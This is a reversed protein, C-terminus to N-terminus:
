TGRIRDHYRARYLLRQPRDPADDFGSRDHLVNNCLLGMGSELRGQFLYPSDSALIAQLRSLARQVDDDAHWVINRKRATYRMHLSGDPAVSFVPGAQDPRAVGEDDTRAPITMADARMLASVLVPDEDRLRIYVMDPDLLRNEGGRAAPHVCHLIMGRITREPTNYYGDTHWNIPRNTYPIFDPRDGEDSVTLSSIADDDALWNHDLHVLGFQEGLRAPIEKDADDGCASIYIAMNAKRCRILLAEHEAATLARPDGVEVVLAELARPYDTLKLDRWQRYSADDGLDFPTMTTTQPM